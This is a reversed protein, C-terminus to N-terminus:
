IQVIWSVHRGVASAQIPGEDDLVGAPMHENGFEFNHVALALQAVNNMCSARRAAERAAQIAPLLMAVLVGIIAIVVLLEILTFACRRTRLVTPRRLRSRRM